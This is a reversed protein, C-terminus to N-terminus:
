EEDSSAMPVVLRCARRMRLHGDWQVRRLFESSFSTVNRWFETANRLRRLWCVALLEVRTAIQLCYTPM